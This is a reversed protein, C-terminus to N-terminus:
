LINYKFLKIWAADVNKINTKKRMTMKKPDIGHNENFNSLHFQM